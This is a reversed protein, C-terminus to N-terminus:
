RYLAKIQGWTRSQTPTGNPCIDAGVAGGQYTAWSRVDAAEIIGASGSNLGFLELSNLVVCAATACGACVGFGEDFSNSSNIQAVFGSYLTNAVVNFPSDRAWDLRVRFDNTGPLTAVDEIVFGGGQGGAGSYPNTCGGLTGVNVLALSGERCGGTSLSWWAPLSSDNVRFDLFASLGVYDSIDAAVRFSGVLNFTLNNDDCTFVRNESASTTGCNNWGLNVGPTAASALTPVLLAAAVVFALLKQM